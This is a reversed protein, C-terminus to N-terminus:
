LIFDRDLQQGSCHLTDPSSKREVIGGKMPLESSEGGCITRSSTTRDTEGRATM